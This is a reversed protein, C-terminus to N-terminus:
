IGYVSLMARKLRRQITEARGEDVAKFEVEPLPTVRISAILQQSEIEFAMDWCLGGLPGGLTGLTETDTAYAGLNEVLASFQERTLIGSVQCDQISAWFESDGEDLYSYESDGPETWETREGTAEKWARRVDSPGLDWHSEVKHSGTFSAVVSFKM